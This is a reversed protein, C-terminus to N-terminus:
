IHILSLGLILGACDQLDDATAYPPGVAPVSPEHTAIVSHVPPVTRLRAKMGSVQEIGRCVERALAATGGHRSYYLVLIDRMSNVEFTVSPRM